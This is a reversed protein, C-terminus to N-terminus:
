ELSTVHITAQINSQLIHIQLLWKLLGKSVRMKLATTDYEESDPTPQFYASFTYLSNKWLTITVHYMADEFILTVIRQTYYMM